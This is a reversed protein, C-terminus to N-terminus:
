KASYVTLAVDNSLDVAQNYNTEGGRTGIVSIWSDQRLVNLIAPASTEDGFLGYTVLGGQTQENLGQQILSAVIVARTGASLPAVSVTLSSADTAGDGWICTIGGAQREPTQDATYKDGYKGGPGGLLVLGHQSFTDLRSRPVIDACAIPQSFVAPTAVATATGTSSTTPTASTEM